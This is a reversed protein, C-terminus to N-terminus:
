NGQGHKDNLLDTANKCPRKSDDVRLDVDGLVFRGNDGDSGSRYVCSRDAVKAVIEDNMETDIYMVPNNGCYAYLNLGNITDPALYSIDDITIFRGIEPDYYRTQLFYL